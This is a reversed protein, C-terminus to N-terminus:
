GRGVQDLTTSSLCALFTLGVGLRRLAGRAPLTAPLLNVVHAVDGQGVGLDLRQGGAVGEDELLGPDVVVHGPEGPQALGM